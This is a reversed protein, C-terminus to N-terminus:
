RLIGSLDETLSAVLLDRVTELDDWRVMESPSHIHRCPISLVGSPVGSQTLQITSAETTGFTLVERQYPINYKEATQILHNKIEPPAIHRVDKIKVAVGAGLKLANQPGKPTDGTPAVDVALAFEPQIAYAATMAGRSGVEEQVTFVFYLDHESDQLAEMASLLVACGSRDDLGKSILGHEDAVAPAFYGAVDGVRIEDSRGAVDIYFGPLAPMKQRETYANEVGVVGVIGNEFRVRASYLVNPMQAGINTFRLFGERDIHSVMLGIEDMHASIMVRRGTGRGVRCILNGLTDVRIERALSDAKEQILARIQHEYGSPGWAQALSELLAKM